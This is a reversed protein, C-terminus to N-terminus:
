LRKWLLTLLNKLFVPLIILERKGADLAADSLIDAKEKPSTADTEM